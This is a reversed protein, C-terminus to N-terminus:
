GRMCIGREREARNKRVCPWLYEKCSSSIEFAKFLSVFALRVWSFIEHSFEWKKKRKM